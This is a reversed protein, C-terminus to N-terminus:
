QMIYLSLRLLTCKILCHITCLMIINIIYMNHIIYMYNRDTIITDFLEGKKWVCKAADAILMDIYLPELSYQRLNARM